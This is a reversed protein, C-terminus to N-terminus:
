KKAVYKTYLSKKHNRYLEAMKSLAWEKVKARKEIGGSRPTIGNAEFEEYELPLIFHAILNQWLDDKADDTVYSNSEEGPENSKNWEQITIPLNDRVLVRCQNTFM